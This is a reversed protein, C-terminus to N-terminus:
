RRRRRLAALGALAALSLSAPEPVSTAAVRAGDATNFYSLSDVSWNSTVDNLAGTYDSWGLHSMNMQQIETAEGATGSIMDMLTASRESIPLGAADYLGVSLTKSGGDYGVALQLDRGEPNETGLWIAGSANYGFASWGESGYALDLGMYYDPGVKWHRMITGLVQRTQPSLAGLFGAFEYTQTETENLSTWDFRYLGSFSNTSNVNGGLSRGAKDPTYASTGADQATIPLSGGSATGIMVKATNNDYMDVVGDANSDFTSEWVQAAHASAPVLICAGVILLKRLM